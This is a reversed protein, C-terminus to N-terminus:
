QVAILSEKCPFKIQCIKWALTAAILAPLLGLGLCFSGWLGLLVIGGLCLWSVMRCLNRCLQEPLILRTLCFLARGGDLPYIPLLNYVSHLGACIATRPFIDALLLLCLGSAPGALACFLEQPVSIPATDLQAGPISFSVRYVEVRCLKLALAHGLEHVLVSLFVAALWRLPLMLVLLALLLYLGPEIACASRGHKM